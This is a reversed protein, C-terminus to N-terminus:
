EETEAGAQDAFHRILITLSFIILMIVVMINLAPMGMKGDMFLTGSRLARIIPICNLIGVIIMIVTYRKRNSNLGWYVDHWICYVGLVICGLIIGTFHQLYSAIPLEFGGMGLIVMVTEFVMVTYFALTYARARVMKQREDYETRIKKDKNAFRFLIVCILLGIMLGVAAGASAFINM